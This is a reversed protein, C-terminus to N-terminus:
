CFLIFIANDFITDEDKAFPDTEITDIVSLVTVDAFSVDVPTTALEYPFVVAM